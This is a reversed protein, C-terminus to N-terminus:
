QWLQYQVFLKKVWHHHNVIGLMGSSKSAATHTSRTLGRPATKFRLPAWDQTIKRPNGSIVVDIRILPWIYIGLFYAHVLITAQSVDHIMLWSVKTQELKQSLKLFWSVHWCLPRMVWGNKMNVRQHRPYKFSIEFLLKWTSKLLHHSINSTLPPAFHISYTFVPPQPPNHHHHHTNNSLYKLFVIM